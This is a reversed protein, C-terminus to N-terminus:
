PIEKVVKINVPVFQNKYSQIAEEAAEVSSYDSPFESLNPCDYGCEEFYLGNYKVQYRTDEPYSVELIKFTM